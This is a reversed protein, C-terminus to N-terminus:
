LALDRIPEDARRLDLGKLARLPKVLSMGPSRRHSTAPPKPMTLALAREYGGGFDVRTVEATKMSFPGTWEANHDLNEIEFKRGDVELPIGIWCGDSNKIEREVHILPFKKAISHVADSWSTLKIGSPRKPRIGFKRIAKVQWHSPRTFFRRQRIDRDRLITYGDLQFLNWDLRHLLIFEDSFDVVFGAIREEIRPRRCLEVLTKGLHRRLIRRWEPAMGQKKTRAVTM